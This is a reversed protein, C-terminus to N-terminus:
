TKKLLGHLIPLYVTIVLGREGNNLHISGHHKTIITRAIPLGLGVGREHEPRAGRYFREFVRSLAEPSVGGGDDSICIVAESDSQAIDVAIHGEEDTHECANKILNGFAEDIWHADCRIHADGRIDIRKKPYLTNFRARIDHVLAALSCPEYNLSYGDANLKELKLLSGILAEMREILHLQRDAHESADMECYLRLGAIPTKFQHSVDQVFAQNKALQARANEESLRLRTELEVVANELPAFSDDRVSFAPSPIDGHLFAHIQESLRAIERRHAALRLALLILAPALTCVAILLIM